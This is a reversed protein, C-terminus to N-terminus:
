PRAGGPDSPQQTQQRGAADAGQPESPTAPPRQRLRRFITRLEGIPVVLWLCFVLIGVAEITLTMWDLM